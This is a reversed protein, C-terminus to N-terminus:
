RAKWDFAYIQQIDRRRLIMPEDDATLAFWTAALEETKERLVDEHRDEHVRYRSITGRSANLYWVSKADHSWFPWSVFGGSEATEKWKRESVQYLKLRRSSSRQELAALTSGDPSWRPSYLGDSDPFKTAEGTEVDLAWLCVLVGDGYIIRKGDPAWALDSQAGCGKRCAPYPTGGAANVVYIRPRPDLGTRGNFAILKGDPSWRPLVARM